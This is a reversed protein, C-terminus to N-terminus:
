EGGFPLSSSYSLMSGLDSRGFERDRDRRAARPARGMGRGGLGFVDEEHVDADMSDADTYIATMLKQKLVAKSSYNPLELNFFCTDSRPFVMDPNNGTRMYPKILMRTNTRKWEDDDVPLREQGWAFRVFRRLDEQTLERMTEWFMAVVPADPAILNYETHRQLLDVNIHSSGCVRWELDSETFLDFLAAPVVSHLGRMVHKLQLSGEELRARLALEIWELRQNFSVISNTGGPRLEVTTKDSLTTTFDYVDEWENEPCMRWWELTGYFSKDIDKLDMKTLPLRVLHKWFIPALDINLYVGTRLACGMLVGLFEYMELSMPSKVSPAVLYRDRNKGVGNQANPCPILLPLKSRLENVVDTFFQRYPGGQGEVNEGQFVIKLSFHPETGPPKRQRLLARDIGRLQQLAVGFATNQMLLSTNKPDDGAGGVGAPGGMTSTTVDSQDNKSALRLREIVVSPQNGEVGTAGLVDFTWQMKVQRFVASRCSALISSLSDPFRARDFCIYKLTGTLFTNFKVLLAFRLRLDATSFSRLLPNTDLGRRENHILVPNLQMPGRVAVEACIDELVQVFEADRAPTWALISEVAEELVPFSSWRLNWDFGLLLLDSWAGMSDKKLSDVVLSKFGKATLAAATGCRRVEYSKLANSVFIADPDTSNLKCVSRLALLHAGFVLPEGVEHLEQADASMPPLPLAAVRNFLVDLALALANSPEGSALWLKGTLYQQLSLDQPKTSKRLETLDAPRVVESVKVAQKSGELSPFELVKGNVLRIVETTAAPDRTEIWARSGIVVFSESVLPKLSTSLSVVVDHVEQASVGAPIDELLVISGGCIDQRTSKWVDSVVLNLLSVRDGIMRSPYMDPKAYGGVVLLTRAVSILQTLWAPDAQKPASAKAGFMSVGTKSPKDGAQKKHPPEEAAPPPPPVAAQQQEEPPPAISMQLAMRLEEDLEEGEGSAVVAAAPPPPPSAPQAQEGMAKAMSIAIELDEDRKAAAKLEPLPKTPPNELVEAEIKEVPCRDWVLLEILSQTYTTVLVNKDNELLMQVEPLVKEWLKGTKVRGVRLMRSMLDAYARKQVTPATSEWFSRLTCDFLRQVDVADAYNQLLFEALWIALATGPVCPSVHFSFKCSNKKAANCHVRFWMESVQAVFPTFRKGQEYTKIVETCEADSYFVMKASAQSPLFCTKGFTILLTRAGKVSIHFSETALAEAQTVTIANKSSFESSTTMLRECADELPVLGQGAAKLSAVYSRLKSGLTEMAKSVSPEYPHFSIANLYEAGALQLMEEAKGPRLPSYKLLTLIARRAHLSAVSRHARIATPVLKSVHQSQLSWSPVGGVAALSGVPVWLLRVQGSEVEFFELLVSSRDADWARSIGVRGVLDSVEDAADPSAKSFLFARGIRLDDLTVEAVDNSADPKGEGPFRIHAAGNLIHQVIQKAQAEQGTQLANRIQQLHDEIIVPGFEEGEMFARVEPLVTEEWISMPSKKGSDADPAGSYSYGDETWFSKSIKPNYRDEGAKPVQVGPISGQSMSLAERASGVPELTVDLASDLKPTVPAGSPAAPAAAAAAPAAASAAAAPAAPAAAAAPPEPEPEPEAEHELAWNVAAEINYDVAALARMAHHLPFGIAVIQMALEKRALYLNEEEKKRREEELAREAELRAAEEERKKKTEEDEVPPAAATAGGVSPDFRFPFQGFNVRVRMGPGLGICPVLRVSPVDTFATGLSVGNHTFTITKDDKNWLCGVVSKARYFHGYSSRQAAGDVFHTKKSDAQYHFSGDSWSRAGVPILGISIIIDKASAGAAGGQSLNLGIPGGSGAGSSSGAKGTSVVEMEWYHKQCSDPVAANACIIREQFGQGLGSGKKAKGGGVARRGRGGGGGGVEPRNAGNSEFSVELNSSGYFVVGDASHDLCTPLIDLTNPGVFKFHPLLQAVTRVGQFLKSPYAPRTNEDWLQATAAVTQQEQHSLSWSPECARALGMLVEFASSQNHLVIEAARQSRILSALAQACRSRLDARLLSGVSADHANLQSQLVRLFDGLLEPSLSIMDPDAPTESIPTLSTLPIKQLSRSADNELVINATGDCADSFSVLTGIRAAGIEGLVEVRCGVRLIETFGGVVCLSALSMTKRLEAISGGSLAQDVMPLDRIGGVCIEQVMRSWEPRNSTSALSRLAAVYQSALSLAVHNNTWSLHLPAKPPESSSGSAASAAAPTVPVISVTSGFVALMKGYKICDDYTGTFLLAKGSKVMEEIIRRVVADPQLNPVGGSFSALVEPGVNNLLEEFLRAPSGPWSMLHLTCPTSGAIESPASAEKPAAPASAQEQQPNQQKVSDLLGSVLWRGIHTFCLEVFSRVVPLPQKPLLSRILLLALRKAQPTCGDKELVLVLDKTCECDALVDLGQACAGILLHLLSLVEGTHNPDEHSSLSAVRRLERSLLLFCERRFADVANPNLVVDDAGWHMAQSAVLRFAAWSAKKLLQVKTDVVGVVAPAGKNASAASSGDDEEKGKDDDGDAGMDMPQVGLAIESPSTEVVVTMLSPLVGVQMLVGADFSRFRMGCVEMALLRSETDVSPSRVVELLDNLVVSFAREVDASLQKGCAEIRDMYHNGNALGPRVCAFVQHRVSGFSSARFLLHMFSLASVRRSARKAHLALTAQMESVRLDSKVFSSIAPIPSRPLPAQGSHITDLLVSQRWTKWSSYADLWQRLEKVRRTFEKSKQENKEKALEQNKAADTKPFYSASRFLPLNNFSSDDDAADEIMLEVQQSDQSGELLMQKKQSHQSAFPNSSIATPYEVVKQTPLLHLLFRAREAVPRCVIEHPNVSGSNTEEFSDIDQKLRALLHRHTDEINMLSFPVRKMKCLAKLKEPPLDMFDTTDLKRDAVAFQWQNELQGREMLWKFTKHTEDGVALLKATHPSSEAQEGSQLRAVFEMADRVLGLHKLMAAVLLRETHELHALANPSAMRRQKSKLWNYLPHADQGDALTNLFVNEPSQQSSQDPGGTFHRSSLWVQCRQEEASTPEGALFAAAQKACLVGIANTLDLLWHQIIGQQESIEKSETVVCRFGWRSSVQVGPDDLNRSGASFVFTVSNGEVLLRQKPWNTGSFAIPNKDAGVVPVSTNTGQFLQLFDSGSSLTRCRSDFHLALTKAGPITVTQQLQNRGRSYPHTSEVVQRQEKKGHAAAASARNLYQEDAAKVAPTSLCLEDLARFLSLLQQQFTEVFDFDSVIPSRSLTCILSPLCVGLFSSQAVRDRQPLSLQLVAQTLASSRALAVRAYVSAISRLQSSSFLLRQLVLLVQLEPAVSLPAVDGKDSLQRSTAFELLAQVFKEVLAANTIPSPGDSLLLLAGVLQEKGEALMELSAQLLLSSPRSFLTLFVQVWQEATSTVRVCVAFATAAAKQISIDLNGDVSAADLMDLVVTAAARAHAVCGLELQSAHLALLSFVSRLAFRTDRQDGWQKELSNLLKLFSPVVQLLKVFREKKTQTANAVAVGLTSASISSSRSSASLGWSSSALGLSEEESTGSQAPVQSSLDVMYFPRHFNRQLSVLRYLHAVLAFAVDKAVAPQAWDKPLRELAGAWSDSHVSWPADVVGFCPARGRNVWASCRLRSPCLMRILNNESDYCVGIGFSQTVIPDEAIFKGSPLEFVRLKGYPDRSRTRSNPVLVCLHVGTTFFCGTDWHAASVAPGPKPEKSTPAVHLEITRILRLKIANAPGEPRYMNVLSKVEPVASPRTSQTESQYVVYLHKGDSIIPCFESSSAVSLSLSAVENLTSSDIVTLTLQRAVDKNNSSAPPASQQQPVAAAAVAQGSATKSAPLPPSFYFLLGNVQAMSAVKDENHFSPNSAYVHGRITTNNGIHEGSGLKVLGQSGLHAYIFPGDTAVALPALATRQQSLTQAQLYEVVWDGLHCDSSLCPVQYLLEFDKVDNLVAAQVRQNVCRLLAEATSLIHSTDGSSVSLAVLVQAAVQLRQSELSFNNRSLVSLIFDHFSQLCDMPESALSCPKLSQLTNLLISMTSDCLAEYQQASVSSLSEILPFLSLVGVRLVFPVSSFADPSPTKDMNLLTSYGHVRASHLM